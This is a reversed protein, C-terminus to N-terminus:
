QHDIFCVADTLPAMIKAWVIAGDGTLQWLELAGRHKSQRRSGRCSDLFVDYARQLARRHRTHDAIEITWVQLQLHDLGMTRCFFVLLQDPQYGSFFVGGDDVGACALFRLLGEIQEGPLAATHAEIVAPEPGFLSGLRLTVELVIPHLDHHRGDGEAHANIFWIDPADDM